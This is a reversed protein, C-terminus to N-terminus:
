VESAVVSIGCDLSQIKSLSETSQRKLVPDEGYMVDQDAPRKRRKNTLQSVHFDYTACQRKRSNEDYPKGGISALGKVIKDGQSLRGTLDLLPQTNLQSLRKIGLPVRNVISRTLIEGLLPLIDSINDGAIESDSVELSSESTSDHPLLLNPLSQSLDGSDTSNSSPESIHSTDQGNAAKRDSSEGRESYALDRVSRSHMHGICAGPDRTWHRVDDQALDNVRTLPPTNQSRDRQDRYCYVIM